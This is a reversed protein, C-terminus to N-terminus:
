SVVKAAVGLARAAQTLRKEIEEGMVVDADADPSLLLEDSSMWCIGRQGDTKAERQGPFDVGTVGTAAKQLEASALDGRLTIMGRLGAETVTVSGSFTAGDLASVSNSM